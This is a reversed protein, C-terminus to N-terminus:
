SVLLLIESLMDANMLDEPCMQTKRELPDARITARTTGDLSREVAAANHRPVRKLLAPLGDSKAPLQERSVDVPDSM